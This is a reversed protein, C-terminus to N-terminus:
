QFWRSGKRTSLTLLQMGPCYWLGCNVRVNDHEPQEPQEQLGEQEEEGTVIIASDNSSAAFEPSRRGEQKQTPSNGERPSQAPTRQTPSRGQRPSQVPTRETPSSGRHPTQQVLLDAPALPQESATGEADDMLVDMDLIEVLPTDPNALIDQNNPATSPIHEPLDDGPSKLSPLLLAPDSAGIATPELAAQELAAQELAAHELAVPEVAAPEVAAPEGAAQKLAAHELAAQELAVPELAAQELAAQAESTTM